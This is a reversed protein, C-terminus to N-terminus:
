APPVIDTAITTKIEDVPFIETTFQAGGSFDPNALNTKILGYVMGEPAAATKVKDINVQIIGNAADIVTIDGYGALPNLSFKDIVTAPDEESYLLVVYGQYGTLDIPTTVKKGFSNEYTSTVELRLEIDDGKPIM